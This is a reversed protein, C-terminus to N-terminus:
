RKKRQMMVLETKIEDISRHIPNLKQTILNDQYETYKEFEKKTIFTVFQWVVYGGVAAMVGLVVSLTEWSIM